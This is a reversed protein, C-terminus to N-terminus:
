MFDTGNIQIALNSTGQDANNPNMSTIVPLPNSAGTGYAYFACSEDLSHDSQLVHREHQGYRGYPPWIGLIHGLEHTITQEYQAANVDLPEM